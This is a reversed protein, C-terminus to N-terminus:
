VITRRSGIRHRMMRRAAQLYENTHPERAFAQRLAGDCQPCAALNMIGFALADVVSSALCISTGLALWGSSIVSIGSNGTVPRQWKPCHFAESLQVDRSTSRSPVPGTGRVVGSDPRYLVYGRLQHSTQEIPHTWGAAQPWFHREGWYDRVAMLGFFFILCVPCTGGRKGLVPGRARARSFARRKKRLM